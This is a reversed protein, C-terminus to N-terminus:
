EFVSGQVVEVSGSTGVWVAWARGAATMQLQPTRVIGLPDTAVVVPPEWGSQAKFRASWVSPEGTATVQEWVVLANGAPDMALRAATAAGADNTEIKRAGRWGTGPALQNAWLDEGQGLNEPWVVLVAGSADIAIRPASTVLPLSGLQAGVRVRPQDNVFTPSEWGAGPTFRNARVADIVVNREVWVAFFNGKDDATLAPYAVASGAGFDTPASWTNSGAMYYSARGVAPAGGINETWVIMANGADDAVLDFESLLGAVLTKDIASASQPQWGVRPTYPSWVLQYAGNEFERWVALGTGDNNVVVSPESASGTRQELVRAASWTKSSASFESGLVKGGELWVLLADGSDAVALDPNDASSSMAPFPQATGWKNTAADYRNLWWVVASTTPDLNYWLAFGDGASNRVFKNLVTTSSGPGDLSSSKQWKGDATQFDISWPATPQEGLAGRVNGSITLSHRRLLALLKNPTLTLDAGTLRGTLAVPVTGHQASLVMLPLPDPTTALPASFKLNIASSAAVDTADDAPTSSLLSLPPLVVCAVAVNNVAAGSITGSGNSVTCNQPPTGPQTLVNVSYNTGNALGTALAVTGNTAVSVNSGGNVQLLLTGGTLGSVVGSLDFTPPPPPPPAPPAPTPSTGGTETPPPNDSGSSGGCGVLLSALLCCLAARVVCLSRELYLM